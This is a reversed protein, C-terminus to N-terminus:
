SNLFSSSSRDSFAAQGHWRPLKHKIQAYICLRRSGDTRTVAHQRSEINATPKGFLPKGGRYLIAKFLPHGSHTHTHTHFPVCVCVCKTVFSVDNTNKSIGYFFCYRAGNLRMKRAAQQKASRLILRVSPQVSPSDVFREAKIVRSSETFFPGRSCEM